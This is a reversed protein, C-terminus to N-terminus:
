GTKGVKRATQFRYPRVTPTVLFQDDHVTVHAGRDFFTSVIYDDTYTTNESQVLIDKPRTVATPHISVSSERDVNPNVYVPAQHYTIPAM